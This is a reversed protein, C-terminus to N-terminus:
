LKNTVSKRLSPLIEPKASKTSVIKIYSAASCIMATTTINTRLLVGRVLVGFSAFLSFLIRRNLTSDGRYWYLRLAPMQCASM